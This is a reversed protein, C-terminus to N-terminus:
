QVAYMDQLFSDLSPATYAKPLLGSLTELSTCTDTFNKVSQPLSKFRFIVADNLYIRALDLRGKLEGKREGKKILEEEWIRINEEIMHPDEEILQTDLGTRQKAVCLFWQKFTRCLEEYKPEQLVRNFEHSLEIFERMTKAQEVRILLGMLTGAKNEDIDMAGEDLLFFEQQPQYKVLIPSHLVDILDIVTQPETWRPKGNYIVIPLVPPLKKDPGYKGSKVLDLWLLSTYNLIRLAMFHDPRSQFELMLYLYVEEGKFRIKWVCDDFYERLDETVYSSKVPELTSLDFDAAIDQPLFGSLLSAVLYPDTFLSKYVKDHPIKETAMANEKNCPM